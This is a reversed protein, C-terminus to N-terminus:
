LAEKENKIFEDYLAEAMIRHGNPNLHGDFKYQVPFSYYRKFSEYLNIFPINREKAFRAIPESVIPQGYVTHPKFGQNLRGEAWEEPDIQFGYPYMLLVFPIRKEQLLDAMMGLYKRNRQWLIKVNEEQGTRYALFSDHPMKDTYENQFNKHRNKWKFFFKNLKNEFYLYVRFHRILFRQLSTANSVWAREYPACRIPRGYEDFIATKEYEYDDKLDGADYFLLVMDPNLKIAKQSLLIYELIPSYSAIAGNIVEYRKGSSNQNLRQEFRKIFSDEARVAYGEVYSDGLVLIRFTNAPKKMSFERDRFGFSNITYPVNWEKTVCNAKVNPILSHDFVFDACRYQLEKARFDSEEGWKVRLFIEICVLFLVLNFFILILTFIFKKM